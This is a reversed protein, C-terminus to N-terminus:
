KVVYVITKKTGNFNKTAGVKVTIQVKTGSKVGKGISIKGGSVKVRNNNTTYAVKAGGKVGAVAIRKTKNNSTVKIKQSAKNVTYTIVKSGAYNGKGTIKIKYKGASVVKTWGSVTYDTGAKLVKSGNKVTIKPAQKKGNYTVKAVTPKAYSAVSYKVRYYATTAFSYNGKGKIVVKHLGASVAVNGSVVYDKGAKLTKGGVKVVPTTTVKSGTYYKSATAAKATVKKPAVKYTITKTGTYGNTGNITIKYTGADTVAAKKVIVFDTGEVLTKGNIKVTLKPTQAKGTYTLTGATVTAKDVNVKAPSSPAAFAVTPIMMAVCVIVALIKKLNKM